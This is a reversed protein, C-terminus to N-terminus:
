APEGSGTAPGAPSTEREGFLATGIRVSTAGFRVAESFDASMGMSLYTLGHRRALEALFAFHLAPEENVPPICMLGEIPLRCTERCFALLAALAGPRVGAKQEEEGTNVQIYCRPTRGTRAGEAALAEALRERDVTEVVDFLAVAERVKNTQLPGILRLEVGPYLHRLAPWKGRAEQVRNEGFVRHGAALLPLIRDEPQTKSVAVLSVSAPDRGAARAAEAVALTVRDLTESAATGSQTM